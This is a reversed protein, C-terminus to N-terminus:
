AHRVGVTELVSTLHERSVTECTEAHGIERALVFRLRGARTKKDSQFAALMADLGLGEPLRRMVDLRGVLAEIRQGMDAKLWGQAVSLRAAMLMGLAVAEGHNLQEYRSLTELGHAFTHGFNLIERLGSEREDAAVVQAKIECSRRVARALAQKDRALLVDLAGELWAFFQADRIVGYKIVEALGAVLERRPLTDLTDLDAVVGCPQHFAGILNKGRAHNVATKGGVSSDVQALLSTPVQLYPVGRMWTAAAFGTLDGVVGGGLAILTVTRDFGQEALQNTISHWTEVTKHQEGVPLIHRGLKIGNEALTDCLVDCYIGAVAEDSVVLASSGSVLENWLAADGLFGAGIHIEYSREGLNVPLRRAPTM